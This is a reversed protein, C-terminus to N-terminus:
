EPSEIDTGDARGPQAENSRLWAATERRHQGAAADLPYATITFGLRRYHEVTRGMDATPMGPAVSLMRGLPLDFTQEEDAV